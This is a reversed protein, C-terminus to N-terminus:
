LAVAHSRRRRFLPPVGHAELNVVAGLLAVHDARLIDLAEGLPRLPTQGYAVVVICADLFPAIARADVTQSLPPLDVLITPFLGKLEPLLRQMAPSGLLDESQRGAVRGAFPLLYATTKADFVIPDLHGEDLAEVLGTKAAPAMQRSLSRDRYDADILLTKSGSVAFAAALNLAVTSAGEGPSLSLIGLCRTPRDRCLSQVSMKIGRMAHSTASSPADIVEVHRASSRPRHRPLSGLYDLGLVQRVQAATRVTGDLMSRAAAAIVGVVFGGFVALLLVLKTKPFSKALPRSAATIVRANSVPYSAQQQSETLRELFGEFLKRYAEARAELETLKDMLRDGARGNSDTIGHSVRFAQAAAAAANLQIGLQTIRGEMWESAQEAIDARAKQQDSLYAETIGNAIRAAKDPDDSSFAIEIVYSQGVRRVTLASDFRSLAIREREYDSTPDDSRFDPDDLLGLRNIVEKAIRESRIVEVQSEVQANDITLEVPTAAQLLLQQKDPEILLQTSATFLPTSTLVFVVAAATAVVMCGLILWLGQKLFGIADGLTVSQAPDGAPGGWGGDGQAVYPLRNLM